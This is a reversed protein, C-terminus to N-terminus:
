RIQHCLRARGCTPSRVVGRSVSQPTSPFTRCPPCAAIRPPHLTQVGRGPGTCGKRACSSPSPRCRGSPLSQRTGAPSSGARESPSPDRGPRSVGCAERSCSAARLSPQPPGTDARRRSGAAAWVTPRVPRGKARTQACPAVRSVWNSRLAQAPWGSSTLRWCTLWAARPRSVAHVRQEETQHLRAGRASRRAKAGLTSSRRPWRVLTRLREEPGQGVTVCRPRV